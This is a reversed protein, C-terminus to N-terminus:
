VAAADKLTRRRAAFGLLGLGAVLMAYTEPEPIPATAVGLTVNDIAFDVGGYTGPLGSFRIEKFADSFSTAFNQFDAVGGPGDNIQDLTFNQSVTTSDARVGIVSISSAWTHPYFGLAEAGSFSELTFLHNDSAKIVFTDGYYLAYNSYSNMTQVYFTGNDAGGCITCTAPGNTREGYGQSGSVTVDFGAESYSTFPGWGYADFTITQALAQSCILLPFIFVSKLINKM